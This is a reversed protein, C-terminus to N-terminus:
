LNGIKLSRVPVDWLWLWKAYGYVFMFCIYGSSTAAAYGDGSTAYGYLVYGFQHTGLASYGSPLAMGLSPIGSAM